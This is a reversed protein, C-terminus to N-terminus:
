PEYLTTPRAQGSAILDLVALLLVPKHPKEHRDPGRGVVGVHLGYIWEIAENISLM